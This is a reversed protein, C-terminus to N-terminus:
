DAEGGCHFGHDCLSPLTLGSQQFCTNVLKHGASQVALLFKDDVARRKRLAALEQERVKQNATFVAQAEKLGASLESLRKTERCSACERWPIWTACCCPAM